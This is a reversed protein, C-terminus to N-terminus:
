GLLALLDRMGSYEATPLAFGRPYAKNKPNFWLSPVGANQAAKVDALVSDGLHLIKDPSGLALDKTAKLLMDPYPKMRCNQEGARYYGDFYEALGIRNIDVNGNTVAILKFKTKLEALVSFTQAPVTFNSRAQFFADYVQDVAEQDTIGLNALGKKVVQVRWESVDHRAEPMETAVQWKLDRWMDIGLEKAKPILRCVEDFQAQEAKIIVDENQYLTDDLDFSLVEFDNPLSNYFTFAMTISM